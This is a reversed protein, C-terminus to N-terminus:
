KAKPWGGPWGGLSLKKYPWSLSRRARVRGHCNIRVMFPGTLWATSPSSTREYFLHSCSRKASILDQLLTRLLPQMQFKKKKKFDRHNSISLQRKYIEANKPCASNHHYEATANQGLFYQGRKESHKPVATHTRGTSSHKRLNVVPFQHSESWEVGWLWILDRTNFVIFADLSLNVPASLPLSFPFCPASPFTSPSQKQPRLFAYFYIDHSQFNQSNSAKIQIGYSRPELSGIMSIIIIPWENKCHIIIYDFKVCLCPCLDM